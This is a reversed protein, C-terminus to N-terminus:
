NKAISIGLVGVIVENAVATITLSKLEKEPNIAIRQIIGHNYDSFYETENEQQVASVLWDDFNVPNILSIKEKTGDTYEVIFRANEVRSQMPNTVGIFFIALESGKVSLNFSMEEPFNNWMSICAVNAGKEPTIFPIGKETTYSGGSFRLKSDDVIVKNYGAQNWDWGFRGNLCAMISYGGPRPHWYEQKHIEGLSINFYDSIDVPDYHGGAVFLPKIEVQKKSVMIEAPLWGDWDHNKVHVFITHIGPEGIMKGNVSTNDRNINDLCATPDKMETILGRDIQININEGQFVNHQYVLKPVPSSLYNVELNINGPQKSEVILESYGIGSRIRYEVSHGNLFVDGIKSSRVPIMFIRNAKAKSQFNFIEKQEKRQYELSADAIKLSAHKWESPFNPAVTIKGDLLNFRIGFLGEVILRLYMSNIDTFDTSGGSYGDPALCHGVGGPISSLYYADVIGKLLENGKQTQGCMFYAWALHINEATYLGCSSYNQPYWDSSWVLRGGRAKTKENRLVNETFSLMQYAQFPDVIGAEISHYITALEPSPHLLKNGIVDVYEAMIGKQPIWLTSQVANRIENSRTLFPKPDRGLKLALNAMIQNASYNYASAQACGGGNYSHADSIWTNLWNQYLNDNDSDLIRKEWDLVDSINDFVQEAYSLDGTWKIEHLIMDVGVEQMNYFITRRGNNIDPLFGYSNKLKSYQSHGNYYVEESEETKSLQLDAFTKFNTKVRDHWGIVTPGYWLRWGLYPAHWAYTGHYFSKEHWSADMTLVNPALSLDLMKDPTSIEIASRVKRIENKLYEVPDPHSLWKDLTGKVANRLIVMYGDLTEGQRIECDMRIMRAKVASSDRELFQGPYETKNADGITVNVPFSAGIQMTTGTAHKKSDSVSARNEGIAIVNDMCDSPSFYREQVYPFEFRGLFDTVGGFGTVFIIRQDTNIKFHVLFGDDTTIPLVEIKATVRPFCQAFTNIEYEMWGNKYTAVTGGNQHFWQSYREGRHAPTEFVPASIGPTLAVGAMFTGCKAQLCAPTKRWDTVAGLIIPQDGAFTIYKETLTDNEHGGYLARNFINNSGVIQYGKPVPQYHLKTTLINHVTDSVFIEAKLRSVVFCFFLLIFLRIRNKM